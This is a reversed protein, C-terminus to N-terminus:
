QRDPASPQPKEIWLPMNCAKRGHDVFMAGPNFHCQSLSDQIANWNMLDLWTRADAPGQNFAAQLGAETERIDSTANSSGWWYGGGLCAGATAVLLFAALLATNRDFVRVRRALAQDASRGIAAAVRHITSAETAALSARFRETEADAANRAALLADTVRRSAETVTRDSSSTRRDLFRISQVFATLLPMMPDDNQIGARRVADRLASVLREITDVDPEGALDPGPRIAPLRASTPESNSDRGTGHRSTTSM